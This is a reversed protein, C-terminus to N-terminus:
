PYQSFQYIIDTDTLMKHLIKEETFLLSKFTIM